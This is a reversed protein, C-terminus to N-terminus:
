PNAVFNVNSVNNLPTVQRTSQAFRYRKADVRIFYTDGPELNNFTYTGFNGTVTQVPAPLNGGSIILAANRIPQGGSTTVSGSISVPGPHLQTGVGWRGTFDTRGPQTALTNDLPLSITNPIEAPTGGTSIWLRYGLREGQIDFAHYMFMMMATFDGTEELKWQRRAANAPLLGALVANETSVSLYSPNVGLASVHATVPSFGNQGVPFLYTTASTIKRVLTGDIYSQVSTRTITGLNLIKNSGAFVYGGQLFIDTVTLDGGAITLTSPGNNVVLKGLIRQPNIEAGTTRDPAFYSIDQGGTGLDFVPPSDFTATQPAINSFIVSSAVADNNGLTFKNSNIMRGTTFIVSRARLNNVSNLTLTNGALIVQRLAGDVVGTGSYVPNEGSFGLYSNPDDGAITGNNIFSQGSMSLGNLTIEFRGGPGVEVNRAQTPGSVTHGGATTDIIINPLVGATRFLGPQSTAANGFRVTADSATTGLGDSNKYALSPYPPANQIAIEGGTILIDDIPYGENHIDFCAFALTAIGGLTCTTMVGASQTYTAPASGDTALKFSGAINIRGGDLIVTSEHYFFLSDSLETGVNYTGASVRLYGFVQVAAQHQAVITYNPNNLWLGAGTAIEYPTNIFTRHSGTFTGSIKLTGHILSLFASAPGDSTNGQVTFNSLTIELINASSNGKDVEMWMIDTVPGTGGFTNSQSGTFVLQAGAQNNNTAFDLTGNNTLNGGVRLAHANANGGGTSFADGPGITVDNDVTLSFGATEGFRLMAPAGGEGATFTTEEALSGAGGVTVSGAFAATDIIVTAGGAITVNDGAAPVVGGVWTSPASWPGGTATSSINSAVSPQSGNDLAYVCTISLLSLIVAKFFNM